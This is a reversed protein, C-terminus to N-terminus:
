FGLYGVEEQLQVGFQDRVQQKVFSALMVVDSATANGTNIIYNAHKESIQAGGIQKGRLGLQDIIWGAPLVGGRSPAGTEKEFDELLKANEVMPNMFYSGASKGVGLGKNVRTAITQKIQERIEEINGKQLQLVASVIILNKNQKFVSTRYAFKCQENSFTKLENQMCDYFTVSEVLSGIERGYAGANGRIAGGVAGPIGAMKEMGSLGNEAAFNIAKILPVGAEVELKEDQLSFKNMKPRVIVGRFGADSILLNSGGALVFHELNKQKAFNLAEKLEDVNGVEIYYDAQGGIGFSTLLALPKKEQIDLM